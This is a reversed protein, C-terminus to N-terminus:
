RNPQKLRKGETNTVVAQMFIFQAFYYTRSNDSSYLYSKVNIDKLSYFFVNMHKM